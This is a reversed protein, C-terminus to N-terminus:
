IELSILLSQGPDLACPRLGNSMLLKGLYYENEFQMWAPLQKYLHGNDPHESLIKIKYKKDPDLGFLTIPTSYSNVHSSLQQILVLSSRQDAKILQVARQNSDATLEYLRSEHLWGKTQRYTALWKKFVEKDSQDIDILDIEFGADGFLAMQLAENFSVARGTTHSTKPGIHMGLLEPPFFISANIYKSLRDVPDNNDSIWFRSAWPLVGYDLRAGGSSCIEIEVSHTNKIAALLKYLQITQQRIIPQGQQNMGQYRDRNMDWKISKCNSLEILESIKSLVNSFVQPNSLDLALQNRALTTKSGSNSLVWDKPSVAAVDPSIMEPELWIGLELGYSQMLAKIEEFGGPYKKLDIEYNGLGSQDSNRNVFWGDDLLIRQIGVESALKARLELKATSQEFYCAEWTNFHPRAATQTAYIKRAYSHFQQRVGNEGHDSLAIYVNPSSYSQGETLILEGPLFLEGATITKYGPQFVDTSIEFNGSWGLHVGMCDQTEGLCDGTHLILGPFNQHSGRGRQNHLTFRGDKLATNFEVLERSWSGGFYKIQSFQHPIPILCNAQDICVYGKLAKINLNAILLGSSDKQFNIIVHVSDSSDIMTIQIKQSEINFDLCRFGYLPLGQRDRLKLNTQGFCGSDFNNLIPLGVFHDHSGQEIGTDLLKTSANTQSQEIAFGFYRFLPLGLDKHEIILSFHKTVFNHLKSM